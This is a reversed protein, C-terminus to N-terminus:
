PKSANWPRDEDSQYCGAPAWRRLTSMLPERAGAAELLVAALDVPSGIELWQGAAVPAFTTDQGYRDRLVLCVQDDGVCYWQALFSARSTRLEGGELLDCSCPTEGPRVLVVSTVAALRHEESLAKPSRAPANFVHGNWAFRLEDLAEDCLDRLRFGPVEDQAGRYRWKAGTRHQFLREGEFDRQYLCWPADTYPTHPVLRYQSDALILGILFLDKDGYVMRYYHDAQMNLYIILQLARWHRAKDIILQGSEVARTTRPPLGCAAWIPNEATLWIIDPWLVVGSEIFEPWAFVEAPDREPVIDADILLVRKFRSEALAFSKLQWGDQLSLGGAALVANADVTDAELDQLLVRMRASLESQGFHWVEIPLACKLSRRLVHILVYANTFISAGGACIVIGDGKFRHDPYSQPESCIARLREEHAVIDLSATM